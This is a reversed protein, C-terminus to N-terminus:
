SLAHTSEHQSLRALNFISMPAPPPAKIRVASASVQRQTPYLYPHDFEDNDFDGGIKARHRRRPRARLEKADEERQKAVMARVNGIRDLSAWRAAPSCHTPELLGLKRMRRLIESAAERPISLAAGLESATCGMPSAAIVALAQFDRTTLRAM